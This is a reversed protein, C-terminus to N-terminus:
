KEILNSYIKECRVVLKYLSIFTFIEVLEIVVRDFFVRRWSFISTNPDDTM